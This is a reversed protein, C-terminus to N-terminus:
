NTILETDPTFPAMQMKPSQVTPVKIIRVMGEKNERRYHYIFLMKTVSCCWKKECLQLWPQLSLLQIKNGLFLTSKVNNKGRRVGRAAEWNKGRGSKRKGGERGAWEGSLFWTCPPKADGDGCGREHNGFMLMTVSLYHLRATKSLSSIVPPHAPPPHDPDPPHPAPVLVTQARHPAPWVPTPRALLPLPSHLHLTATVPDKAREGERERPEALSPKTTHQYGRVHYQLLLVAIAKILGSNVSRSPPIFLSLPLPFPLLPLPTDFVFLGIFLFLLDAWAMWILHKFTLSRQLRVVAIQRRQTVNFCSSQTCLYVPDNAFISYLRGKPSRHCLSHSYIISEFEEWLYIWRKGQLGSQTSLLSLPAQSQRQTCLAASRTRSPTPVFLTPPSPLPLTHPIKLMFWWQSLARWYASLHVNTTLCIQWRRDRLQRDRGRGSVFASKLPSWVWRRHPVCAVPGFIRISKNHPKIDAKIIKLLFHECHTQWFVTQIIVNRKLYYGLFCIIRSPSCSILRSIIKEILQNVM